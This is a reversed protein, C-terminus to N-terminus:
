KKEPRVSLAELEGPQFTFRQTPDEKPVAVTHSLLEAAFADGEDRAREVYGVATGLAVIVRRQRGARLAEAAQELLRAM